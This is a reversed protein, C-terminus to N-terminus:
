RPSGTPTEQDISLYATFNSATLNGSSTYTVGQYKYMTGFPLQAVFKTGVASLAPFTFTLHTTGGSGISADAAKSVYKADVTVGAGVMVGTVVVTLYLRNSQGTNPSIENGFTDQFTQGDATIKVVDTSVVTGTDVVVSQNESFILNKERM